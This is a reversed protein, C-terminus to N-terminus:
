QKDGMIWSQVVSIPKSYVHPVLGISSRNFGNEVVGLVKLLIAELDECVVVLVEEVPMFFSGGGLVRKLVDGLYGHCNECAKEVRKSVQGICSPSAIGNTFLNDMVFFNRSSVESEQDSFVHGIERLVHHAQQLLIM